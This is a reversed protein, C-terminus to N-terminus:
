QPRWKSVQAGLSGYLVSDLGASLGCWWAHDGVHGPIQLMHDRMMGAVKRAERIDGHDVCRIAYEQLQKQSLPQYQGLERIRAALKDTANVICM